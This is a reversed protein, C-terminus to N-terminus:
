ELGSYCTGQLYVPLTTLDIAETTTEEEMPSITSLEVDYDVTIETDEDPLESVSTADLDTAFDASDTSIETDNKIRCWITWVEKQIKKGRM